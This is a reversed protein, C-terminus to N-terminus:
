EDHVEKDSVWIGSKDFGSSTEEMHMWDTGGGGSDAPGHLVFIYVYSM